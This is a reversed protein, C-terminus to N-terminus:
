MTKAAIISTTNIGNRTNVAKIERVSYMSGTLAV